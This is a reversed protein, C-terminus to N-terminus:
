YDVGLHNLTELTLGGSALSNVRQYSGVGNTTLRGYIGDIPGAYHGATKLARQLDRVTATTVNVECLVPLWEATSERVVETKTVEGYEAPITIRREQAPTTIKRVRRNEYVAPIERTIVEPAKTMVQRRVTEYEAPIEIRRTSAASKLVRREVNKYEAPEEVLCMVQGTNTDVRTIFNGNQDRLVSESAAGTLATGYIRGESPKWVRRAESILIRETITEYVAPVEELRFSAASVEIREEVWEFQAPEVRVVEESAEKVVVRETVTEYVAPITEIREGAERVVVRETVTKLEPPLYLRSYCMGPEADPPLLNMGQSDDMLETSAAQDAAATEFRAAERRAEELAMQAETAENLLRASETEAESLKSELAAARAQEDSIRTELETIQSSSTCGALGALAVFCLAATIRQIFQSFM